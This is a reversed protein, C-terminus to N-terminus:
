KVALWLGAESLAINKGKFSTFVISAFNVDM